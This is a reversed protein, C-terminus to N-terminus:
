PVRLNMVTNVFERWKNKHQVLDIWDIGGCEMERLDMKGNDKWRHRPRGFLSKGEYKEVLVSYVGRREGMHAVNRAWRMRRSKIVRLINRPYYFDNLEENHQKRWERTVEDKKLGFIRRTMRNEFVTLKSENRM